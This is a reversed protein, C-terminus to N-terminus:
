TYIIVGRFVGEVRDPDSNDITHLGTFVMNLRLCKTVTQPHLHAIRLQYQVTVSLSHLCDSNGPVDRIVSTPKVCDQSPHSDVDIQSGLVEMMCLYCDCSM